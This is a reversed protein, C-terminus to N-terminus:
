INISNPAPIGEPSIGSLNDADLIKFTLQEQNTGKLFPSVDQACQEVRARMDEPSVSAGSTSTFRLNLVVEYNKDDLRRLAYNGTTVDRNEYPRVVKYEGPKIDLCHLINKSEEISTLLSELPNEDD